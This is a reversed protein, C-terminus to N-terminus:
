GKELKTPTETGAMTLGSLWIAVISIVGLMWISHIWILWMWFGPLPPLWFLTLWLAAALRQRANTHEVLWDAPYFYIKALAHKM